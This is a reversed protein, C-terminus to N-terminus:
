RIIFSISLTKPTKECKMNVFLFSLFKGEKQVSQEKEGKITNRKGSTKEKRNESIRTRFVERGQGTERASGYAKSKREYAFEEIIHSM